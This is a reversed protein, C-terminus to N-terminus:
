TLRHKPRNVGTTEITSAFGEATAFEQMPELTFLRLKHYALLGLLYDANLRVPFGIKVLRNAAKRNILYAGTLLCMRRRNFIPDLLPGMGKRIMEYKKVKDLTIIKKVFLDRIGSNHVIHVIDWELAHDLINPLVNKFSPLLKCDDELILAYPDDSIAIKEYLELHSMACGLESGILKDAITVRRGMGLELVVKDQLNIRGEYRKPDEQYKELLERGNVANFWIPDLGIDRCAQFCSKRREVSQPLSIVYTALM